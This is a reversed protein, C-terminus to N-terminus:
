QLSNRPLKARLAARDRKMEVPPALSQKLADLALQDFKFPKVAPVSEAARSDKFEHNVVDRADDFAGPTPGDIFAYPDVLENHQHSIPRYRENTM